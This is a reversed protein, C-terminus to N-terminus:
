PAVSLISLMSYVLMLLVGIAVTAGAGNAKVNIGNAFRLTSFFLFMVIMRTSAFLLISFKKLVFLLKGLWSGELNNTTKRYNMVLFIIVAISSIWAFIM